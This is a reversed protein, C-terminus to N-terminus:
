AIPAPWSAANKAPMRTLRILSHSNTREPNRLASAPIRHVSRKAEARYSEPVPSSSYTTVITSSPPTEIKPPRPVIM